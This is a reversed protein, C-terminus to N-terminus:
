TRIPAGAAVTLHHGLAFVGTEGAELNASTTPPPMTATSTAKQTSLKTTPTMQNTTFAAATSATIAKM